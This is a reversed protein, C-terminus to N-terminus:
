DKRYGICGSEDLRNIDLDNNSASSSTMSVLAAALVALV